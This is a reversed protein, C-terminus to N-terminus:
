ESDGGIQELLADIEAKSLNRAQEVMLDAESEEIGMELLREKLHTLEEDSLKREVEEIAVEESVVAEAEAIERARRAREQKIVERLFGARESPRMKDLDARLTSIDSELLGVVEALETLLEEVDLVTVDITSLSVDDMDKVINVAELDENMTELLVERRSRVEAPAPITGKALAAVMSRIWRLMKPVSLVRIYLAALAAIFMFAVASVGFTTVLAQQEPSIGSIFNIEVVRTEYNLRSLTIEFQHPGVGPALFAFVYTGNGLDESQETIAVFTGTTNLASTVGIGNHDLDLYTVRVFFVSGTYVNSPIIQYQIDTQIERVTILIVLEGRSYNSKTFTLRISYPASRIPLAETVNAENFGFAYSGNGIVSLSDTGFEWIGVANADTVMVDNLTDRFSFLRRFDDGYPVVITDDGSIETPIPNVRLQVENLAIEYKDKQFSVSITHAVSGAARLTTDIIMSYTGNGNDVITGPIAGFLYRAEAGEIGLGNHTDTFNFTFTANTGYYAEILAESTIIIATPIRDISVTFQMSSPTYGAAVSSVTLIYARIELVDTPVLATYYGLGSDTMNGVVAGISYSLTAGEIPADLDTNNLFVTVNFMDGSIASLVTNGDFPIVETNIERIEITIQGSVSKFNASAAQILIVHTGVDAGSVVFQGIYKSDGSSWILAGSGGIWSYTVTGLSIVSSNSQILYDVEIDVTAGNVTIQPTIAGHITAAIKDVRIQFDRQRTEHNLLASIIELTYEGSPFDMTSVTLNYLGGGIDVMDYIISAITLNVDAGVIPLGTL